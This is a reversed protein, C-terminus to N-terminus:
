INAKYPDDLYIAFYSPVIIGGPSIGTIESFALSILLGLILIENM